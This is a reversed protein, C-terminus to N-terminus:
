IRKALEASRKLLELLQEKTCDGPELDAEPMGLLWGADTELVRCLRAFTELSIIRTGREIHGIFSTSVDVKEALGAQTLGKQHRIQRVRQGLAAYDM